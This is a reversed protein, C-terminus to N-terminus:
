SRSPHVGQALLQRVIASGVMGRHGAIFIRRQQTTMPGRQESHYTRRRALSAQRELLYLGFLTAALPPSM